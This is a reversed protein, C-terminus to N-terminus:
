DAGKISGKRPAVVQAVRAPPSANGNDTFVCNASRSKAIRRGVPEEEEKGMGVPCASFSATMTSGTLSFTSSSRNNGHM